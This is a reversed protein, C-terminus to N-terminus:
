PIFLNIPNDRHIDIDGYGKEIFQKRNFPTTILHVGNKTPLQILLKPSDGIPNCKEIDNIVMDIDKQNLGRGPENDIDVIWKKVPDNHAQGCARVYAKNLFKEEGNAITNAVAQITRLGVKKYSRKNLRLMARANFSRCLDKIEDYRKDLYEVNNIFYNKIVRSNSGLHPNEKKRQLIQLFYFDDESTFKLLPKVQDWVDVRPPFLEKKNQLGRIIDPNM